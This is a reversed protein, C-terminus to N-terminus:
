ISETEDPKAQTQVAFCVFVSTREFVDYKRYSSVIEENGLTGSTEKTEQPIRLLREHLGSLNKPPREALGGKRTQSPVRGNTGNPRKSEPLERVDTNTETSFVFCASSIRETQHSRRITGINENQREDPYENQTKTQFSEDPINTQPSENQPLENTREFSVFCGIM